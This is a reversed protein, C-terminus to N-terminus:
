GLLKAIPVGGDTAPVPRAGDLLETHPPIGLTALVTAHFDPVSVADEVPTKSADDTVGYAGCHKLGGGALSPPLPPLAAILGPM